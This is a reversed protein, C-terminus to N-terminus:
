SAATTLRLYRAVAEARNAVGLKRLISNVHFKVTGPSLVLEAGVASNTRGAVLLRLVDLERRTLIGDFVVRDDLASGAREFTPLLPEGADDADLTVDTLERERAELQEILARLEGRQDRLARTLEARDYARACGEAFEWLLDRDLADVSRQRGRDAHILAIAAGRVVVAAVVYSSWGMAAALPRHARENLQAESVVTARRRRLTEAEILPPVLRVPSALLQARAQAGERPADRVHVVGVQMTVGATVTSLVAREFSSSEVLARPARDLLMQPTAGRALREVAERIGSIATERTAYRARLRALAAAHAELQPGVDPQLREALGDILEPLRDPDPPGPARRGLLADAAESAARVRRALEGGLPGAFVDEAPPRASV